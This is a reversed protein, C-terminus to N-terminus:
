AKRPKKAKKAVGGGDDNDVPEVEYAMHADFHAEMTYYLMATTTCVKAAALAAVFLPNCPAPAKIAGRHAIKLAIAAFGAALRAFDAKATADVVLVHTDEEDVMLADAIAASANVIGMFEYYGLVTQTKFTDFAPGNSADLVVYEDASGCRLRWCMSYVVVRAHQPLKSRLAEIKKELQAASVAQLRTAALKVQRARPTALKKTAHAVEVNAIKSVPTVTIASANASPSASKAPTASPKAVPKGFFSKITAQEAM